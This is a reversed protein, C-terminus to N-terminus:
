NEESDRKKNPNKKKTQKKKNCIYCKSTDNEQTNTNVALALFSGSEAM